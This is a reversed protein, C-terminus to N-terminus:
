GTGSKRGREVSDLSGNSINTIWLYKWSTWNLFLPLKCIFKKLRSTESKRRHFWLRFSPLKNPFYNWMIVIFIQMIPIWGMSIRFVIPIFMSDCKVKMTSDSKNEILSTFVFGHLDRWKNKMYLIFPYHMGNELSENLAELVYWIKSCYQRGEFWCSM